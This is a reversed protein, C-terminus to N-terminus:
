QRNGNRPKRKPSNEAAEAKAMATNRKENQQTQHRRVKKWQNAVGRYPPERHWDKAEHMETQYARSLQLLVRMEWPQFEVGLVHEWGPLDPPEIAGDKKVPGLEFLYDVLYGAVEIRPLAM